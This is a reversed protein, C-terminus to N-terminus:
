GKDEGARSPEARYASDRVSGAANLEDPIEQVLCLVAKLHTFSFPKCASEDKCGAGRLHSAGSGM